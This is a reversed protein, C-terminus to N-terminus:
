MKGAVKKGKVVEYTVDSYNTIIADVGLKVMREMDFSDLIDRRIESKNDDWSNYLMRDFWLSKSTDSSIGTLKKLLYKYYKLLDERAEEGEHACSGEIILRLMQELVDEQHNGHYKENLFIM